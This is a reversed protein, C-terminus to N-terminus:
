GQEGSSGQTGEAGSLRLSLHSAGNHLSSVVAQASARFEFSLPTKQGRVQVGFGPSAVLEWCSALFEKWQQHGDWLPCKWERTGPEQRCPSTSQQLSGELGKHTSRDWVGQCSTAHVSHSPNAGAEWRASRLAAAVEGPIPASVGRGRWYKLARYTLSSTALSMQSCKRPM